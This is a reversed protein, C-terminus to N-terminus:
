RSAVERYKAMLVLHDILPAFTNMFIIAFMVGEVYGSLGRILVTIIGAAVAYIWKGVKTFCCTVPDTLMFMAGFMAGGALLQFLPPAFREPWLSSGIASFVAMAGLYGLPLRWNAVKTAVLFVGGLLILLASTEGLAGAVTGVFLEKLGTLSHTAKYSILPTAGTVVDATWKAFGGLGSRFPQQWRTTMTAPFAVALFLRGIMAVNFINRGTGGFAEKAFVTAFVIGVAVMWLPITPPLILPFILCTVFAGEHIEEKRAYAFLWETGVGFVYSVAIIAISRWGFFYISALTAPMLAFVVMIMFRKLDLPDRVYPPAVPVEPKLFFFADLAQLATRLPSLAKYKSVLGYASQFLRELLRRM